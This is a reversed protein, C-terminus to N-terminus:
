NPQSLTTLMRITNSKGAGNAGLIGLIEGEERILSLHDVLLIKKDTKDINLLTVPANNM